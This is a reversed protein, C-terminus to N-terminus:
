RPSGLVHRGEGRRANLCFGKNSKAKAFGNQGLLDIWPLATLYNQTGDLAMCEAPHALVSIMAIAPDHGMVNFLSYPAANTAGDSSISTVLAIPRPVITSPLFEYRDTAAMKDVDFEMADRHLSEPCAILIQCRGSQTMLPCKAFSFAPMVLRSHYTRKTGNVSMSGKSFCPPRAVGGGKCRGFFIEPGITNRVRGTQDGIQVHGAHASRVQLIAQNRVAPADRHSENGSIGIFFDANSYQVGSREAKQALRKVIFMQDFAKILCELLVLGQFLLLRQRRQKGVGVGGRQTCVGCATGNGFKQGSWALGSFNQM